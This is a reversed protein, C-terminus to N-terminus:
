VESYTAINKETEQVSVSVVQIKEDIRDLERQITHFYTEAMWEATPSCYVINLKQEPALEKFAAVLPDEDSLIISHDYKDEIEKMVKKLFIHYFFDDITRMDIQFLRVGM